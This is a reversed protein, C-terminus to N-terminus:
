RRKTLSYDHLLAKEFCAWSTPPVDEARGKKWKGFWTKVINMLKYAVLEVGETDVIHIVDFLKQLEKIFSEPDETTISATFSLPSM